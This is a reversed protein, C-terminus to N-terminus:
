RVGTWQARSTGNHEDFINGRATKAPAKFSAAKLVDGNTSDVFCFASGSDTRTDIRVLRRYRKGSDVRIDFYSERDNVIKRCKQVFAAFATDFDDSAATTENFADDLLELATRLGGLKFAQAVDGVTLQAVDNLTRLKKNEAYGSLISIFSAIFSETPYKDERYKFIRGLSAWNKGDRHIEVSVAADHYEGDRIIFDCTWYQANNMTNGSKYTQAIIKDESIHLQKALAEIIGSCLNTNAQKNLKAAAIVLEHAVGKAELMKATEHIDM